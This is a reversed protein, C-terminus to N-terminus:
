MDVPFLSGQKDRLRHEINRVIADLDRSDAVFDLRDGPVTLVPALDFSNIWEEYLENLGALYEDTIGSEFGRGRM